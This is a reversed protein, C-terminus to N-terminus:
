LLPGGDRPDLEQHHSTSDVYYFLFLTCLLHLTSSEDQFGEGQSGSTHFFQTGHFWDKTVFPNPVVAGSGLRKM